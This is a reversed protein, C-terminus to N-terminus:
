KIRKYAYKKIQKNYYEGLSPSKILNKYEILPVEYYEYVEETVIETELIKREHDYGVSKLVSSEVNERKM